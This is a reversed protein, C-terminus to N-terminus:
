GEQCSAVINRLQDIEAPSLLANKCFRRNSTERRVRHRRM